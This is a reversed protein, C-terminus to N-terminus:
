FTGATAIFCGGGGGGGGGSDEDSSGTGATQAASSYVQFRGVTQTSFIVLGDRTQVDEVRVWQLTTEDFRQVVPDKGAFPVTIQAPQTLILGYPLIEFDLSNQPDSLAAEPRASTNGIGIELDRFIAGAPIQVSIGLENDRLQLATAQEYAGVALLRETLSVRLRYVLANEDDIVNYLYVGPDIISLIDNVPSPSGDLLPTFRYLASPNIESLSVAGVEGIIDKLTEDRTPRSDPDHIDTNAMYEVLNVVGDGDADALSDMPDGPDLGVSQEFTDTLGDNDTDLPADRHGDDAPPQVVAAAAPIAIYTEASPLSENGATDYATVTFYYTTDAILNGVLQSTKNGVNIHYTYSGSATGYHVRYGALDPESNANWGVSVSAAYAPPTVLLVFLALAGITTLTSRQINQM